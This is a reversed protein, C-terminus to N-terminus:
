MKKDTNIVIFQIVTEKKIECDKEEKERKEDKMNREREREREREVRM